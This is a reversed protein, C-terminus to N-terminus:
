SRVVAGVACGRVGKSMAELLGDSRPIRGNEGQQILEGASFSLLLWQFRRGRVNAGCGGIDRFM